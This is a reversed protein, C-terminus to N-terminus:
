VCFPILLVLPLIVDGALLDQQGVFVVIHVLVCSLLLSPDSDWLDVRAKRVGHVPFLCGLTMRDEELVPLCEGGLAFLGLVDANHHAM